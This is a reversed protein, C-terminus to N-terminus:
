LLTQQHNRDPILAFDNSESPDQMASSFSKNCVLVAAQMIRTGDHAIESAVIVGHAPHIAKQKEM